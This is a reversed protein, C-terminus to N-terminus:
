NCIVTVASLYQMHLMNRSDNKFVLRKILFLPLVMLGMGVINGVQLNKDKVCKVLAVYIGEADAKKLSVIDLICEVPTGGKDCRCCVSLEEVAM